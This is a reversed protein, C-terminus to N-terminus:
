SSALKAHHEIFVTYSEFSQIASRLYAVKEENVEGSMENLAQQKMRDRVRILTKWHTSARLTKCAVDDVGGKISWEKELNVQIPVKQFEQLLEEDSFEKHLELLKKQKATLKVM